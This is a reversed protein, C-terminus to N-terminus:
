RYFRLLLVYLKAPIEGKPIFYGKYVEDKNSSHPFASFTTRDNRNVPNMFFESDYGRTGGDAV